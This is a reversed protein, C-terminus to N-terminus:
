VAQPFNIGWGPVSGTGKATLDFLGLWQVELSNGASLLKLSVKM